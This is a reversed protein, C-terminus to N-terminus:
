YKKKIYSWGSLPHERYRCHPWTGSSVPFYPSISLPWLTPPTYEILPQLVNVLALADNSFYKAIHSIEAEVALDMYNTLHYYISFSEIM